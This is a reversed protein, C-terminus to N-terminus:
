FLTSLSLNAGWRRPAQIGNLDQYLPVSAELGAQWRRGIAVDAGLGADIVRGGYNAQRDPPSAHNYGANYHGKVEGEDTYGLRGSVSLTRGVPIAGWANAMAAPTELAPATVFEPCIRWQIEGAEAMPMWGTPFLARVLVVALLLPMTLPHCLSQRM